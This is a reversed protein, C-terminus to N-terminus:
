QLIDFSSVLNIVGVTLFTVRPEKQIVSEDIEIVIGVLVGKLYHNIFIVLISRLFSLHQPKARNLSSESHLSVHLLWDHIFEQTEETKYNKVLVDSEHILNLRLPLLASSGM